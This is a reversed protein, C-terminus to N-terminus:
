QSKLFVKIEKKFTTVSETKPEESEESITDILEVDDIEEFGSIAEVSDMTEPLEIATYTENSYLNPAKMVMTEEPLFPLEISHFEVTNQSIAEYGTTITQLTDIKKETEMNNKESHSMNGHSM